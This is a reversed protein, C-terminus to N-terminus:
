LDQRIVERNKSGIPRVTLFKQLAEIPGGSISKLKEITRQEIEIM